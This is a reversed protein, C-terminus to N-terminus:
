RLQQAVRYNHVVVAAYAFNLGIMVAYSAIRNRKSLREAAFVTAATMGAKFAIFAAPRSVFPAVIANREYAGRDMAQLTSHVDLAQLAAYSAFLPLLGRSAKPQSPLQLAPKPTQSFRSHESRGSDLPELSLPSGSAEIPLPGDLATVETVPTARNAVETKPGNSPAASPSTALAPDSTSSLAAAAAPGATLWTLSAALLCAVLRFSAQPRVDTM